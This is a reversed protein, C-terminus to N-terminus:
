RYGLDWLSFSIRSMVMPLLQTTVIVYSVPLARQGYNMVFAGGFQEMTIAM